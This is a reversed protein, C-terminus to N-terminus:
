FVIVPKIFVMLRDESKEKGRSSFFWKLIPIRSLLPVGSSTQSKTVEELGGLVIMEGNRIRIISNFQRTANGPPAGPVTAPVFNSFQADIKLTVHENDSVVPNIKITLFAEVPQFQESVTTIPTVGPTVIQTRQVFYTSQGISLLADHGNLTSLKPTSRIDINNNSELAKLSVYFRPTVQGLNVLNARDFLNALLNTGLTVDLGPFITGSTKPAQASDTLIARLGTEINYGKKVDIVMVEILINPVPEDIAKLFSKIEAIQPTSGSLILANLEKFVSVRVDKKTEEPLLKDIDEVSRFKLKLVESSRLGEMSRNGILYVGNVDKFTHQTPTLIHTLVESFTMQKLSITVIQEPLSFFFYNLNLKQSAEHIIDVISAQRAIIDLYQTEGKSSIKTEIFGKEANGTKSDSKSRTRSSLANEKDLRDEFFIAGDAQRLMLNNADAVMELAQSFPMDRIYASVRADRVANAMAINKGTLKTAQRTFLRLSDNKLDITIQGNEPNYNLNLKKEVYPEPSAPRALFPKLFIINNLLEIDLQNVRCLFFLVDKVKANAFRNSVVVNVTPAVSLNLKHNEALLGLFEQIPANSVDFAVVDNLATIQSNALSDLMTNIEALRGDFRQAICYHSLMVLTLSLFIKQKM